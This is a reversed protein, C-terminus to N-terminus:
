RVSSVACTVCQLFIGSIRLFSPPRMEQSRPRGTRPLSCWGWSEVVNKGAQGAGIGSKKSAQEKRDRVARGTSNGPRTPPTM